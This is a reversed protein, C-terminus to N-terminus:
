NLSYCTRFFFLCHNVFLKNTLFILLCLFHIEWNRFPWFQDCNLALCIPSKWFTIKARFLVSKKPKPLRQNIPCSTNLRRIRVSHPRSAQPCLCCGHRHCDEEQRTRHLHRCWPHCEWPLGQPSVPRRMSSGSIRKVGGRRALRRIPSPSVRSTIVCCKAIVSPAEKASDKAEKVVGTM